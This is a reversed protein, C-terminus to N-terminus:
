SEEAAAAFSRWWRGLVVDGCLGLLLRRGFVAVVRIGLV